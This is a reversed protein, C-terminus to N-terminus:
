KASLGRIDKLFLSGVKEHDPLAKFREYNKLVEEKDRWGNLIMQALSLVVDPLFPVCIKLLLSVAGASRLSLLLTCM